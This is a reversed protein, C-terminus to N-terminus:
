GSVYIDLAAQLARRTAATTGWSEYASTRFDLSVYSVPLTALTEKAAPFLDVAFWAFLSGGSAGAAEHCLSPLTAPAVCFACQLQDYLVQAYENRKRRPEFEVICCVNGAVPVPLIARAAVSVAHLLFYGEAPPMRQDKDRAMMCSAVYVSTHRVRLAHSLGTAGLGHLAQVDHRKEYFQKHYHGLVACSTTYQWPPDGTLIEWITVGLSFWPSRSNGLQIAAGGDITPQYNIEQIQHPWVGKGIGDPDAQDVRYVCSGFDCLRCRKDEGVLINAPKIDRHTWGMSSLEVYAKFLSQLLVYRQELTMPALLVDPLPIYLPMAFVACVSAKTKAGFDHLSTPGATGYVFFAEDFIAFMSGAIARGYTKIAQTILIMEVVADSGVGDLPDRFWVVARKKHKVVCKFTGSTNQPLHKIKDWAIHAPLVTPCLAGLVALTDPKCGKELASVTPKCNADMFAGRLRAWPDADM